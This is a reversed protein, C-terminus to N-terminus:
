ALEGKTVVEDPGESWRGRLPFAKTRHLGAFGM